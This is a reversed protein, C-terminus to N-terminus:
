SCVTVVHHGREPVGILTLNSVNLRALYFSSDHTVDICVVGPNGEELRHRAERKLFAVIYDKDLVREFELISPTQKIQGGLRARAYPLFRDYILRTDFPIAPTMADWWTAWRTVLGTHEADCQKIVCLALQVLRKPRSQAIEYRKPFSKVADQWERDAELQLEIAADKLKKELVIEEGGLDAFSVLQPKEEAYQRAREAKLRLETAADKLAREMATGESNLDAFSISQPKVEEDKGETDEVGYCLVKSVILLYLIFRSWYIM